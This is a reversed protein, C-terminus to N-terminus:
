ASAADGYDGTWGTPAIVENPWCGICNGAQVSRGEPSPGQAVASGTLPPSFALTAASLALLATAAARPLMNM